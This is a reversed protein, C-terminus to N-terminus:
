LNATVSINTTRWVDTNFPASLYPGQLGTVPELVYVKIQYLNDDVDFEIGFPIYNMIGLTVNVPQTTSELTGDYYIEIGARYQGQHPTADTLYLACQQQAFAGSCIILFLVLISINRFLKM